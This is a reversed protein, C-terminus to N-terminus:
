RYLASLGEILADRVVAVSAPVLKQSPWVVYLGGGVRGYRPLVRVLEPQGPSTVAAVELPLMAIGLGTACADRLFAMDDCVIPGSVPVTTEGEPGRLRWAMRGERTGFILCRHRQLDAPRRPRGRQDLYSQAAFVGVESPSVKRAVLSSDHLEGGRIALDIGEGILDTVRTTMRLELTVGPYREVIRALMRPFEFPALGPSATIRVVGRPASAYGSVARTAEDAEAMVTQMRTFFHQGADTPRLRRTTRHLLRVGLERELHAVARSVSSGPM